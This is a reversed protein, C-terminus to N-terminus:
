QNQQEEVPHHSLLALSRHIVRTPADDSAPAAKCRSAQLEAEFQGVAQRFHTQHALWADSAYDALAAAAPVILAM